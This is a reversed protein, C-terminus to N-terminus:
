KFKVAKELDRLDWCYVRKGNWESIKKRFSKAFIGFSEKRKGKEWEVWESKEELEKLVKEPNVKKQWKCECFLIERTKENLGVIDIEYQNEGRPKGPIKGWQKGIKKLPFHVSIYPLIETATKEFMKSIYVNLRKLVKEKVIYEEGVELLSSYKWINAFWFMFINNNIEYVGRKRSGIVPLVRKIMEFDEKLINIYKTIETEKRGLVNLGRDIRALTEKKGIVAIIDFLHPGKAAGVILLRFANMVAGMGYEKEEIWQEVAKEDFRM